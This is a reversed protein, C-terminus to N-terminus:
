AALMMSAAALCNSYNMMKSLFKFVIKRKALEWEARSDSDVPTRGTARRGDPAREDILPSALRSHWGYDILRQHTYAFKENTLFM